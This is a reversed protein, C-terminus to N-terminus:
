DVEQQRGYRRVTFSISQSLGTISCPGIKTEGRHDIQCIIRQKICNGWLWCNFQTSRLLIDHSASSKSFLRRSDSLSFLCNNISQEGNIVSHPSYSVRSLSTVMHIPDLYRCFSLWRSLLLWLCFLNFFLRASSTRKKKANFTLFLQDNLAFSRGWSDFENLSRDVLSGTRPM